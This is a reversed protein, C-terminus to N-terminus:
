SNKPLYVIPENPPREERHRAATSLTRAVCAGLRDLYPKIWRTDGDLEVPRLAHAYDVIMPYLRQFFDPSQSNSAIAMTCWPHKNACSLYAGVKLPKFGGTRLAQQADMHNFLAHLGLRRVCRGTVAYNNTYLFDHLARKQLAPTGATRGPADETGPVDVSFSGLFISGWFWGDEAPTLSRLAEFLHPATWDDDDMFVFLDDDAPDALDSIKGLECHRTAAITDLTIAKMEHRLECYTVEFVQRWRDAFEIILGERQGLSRCFARTEELDFNLWDPSARIIIFNRSM